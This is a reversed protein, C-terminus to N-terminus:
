PVPGFLAYVTFTPMFISSEVELDKQRNHTSWYVVENNFVGGGGGFFFPPPIYNQGHEDTLGDKCRDMNKDTQGGLLRLKTVVPCFKM